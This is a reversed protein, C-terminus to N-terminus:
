IQFRTVLPLASYLILCFNLPEAQVLLLGNDRLSRTPRTLSKESPESPTAHSHVCALPSYVDEGRLQPLHVSWMVEGKERCRVSTFSRGFWCNLFMAIQAVFLRGEQRLQAIFRFLHSLSVSICHSYYRKENPSLTAWQGEGQASQEGAHLGAAYM